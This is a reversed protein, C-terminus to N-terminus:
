VASSNSWDVKGYQDHEIEPPTGYLSIIPQKPSKSVGFM